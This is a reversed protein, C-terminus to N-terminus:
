RTSHKALLSEFRSDRRMPDWTPDVRLMAVSVERGAPMSLLEELLGFAGDFDGARACIEAAGGMTATRSQADATVLVLAMARRAETIAQQSRGLGAYALGLAIHMRPDKPHSAVSDELRGRAADYRARAQAQDGLQALAQAQMLARPRYFMDDFSIEHRSAALAALADAPRRQIRAVTFRAWTATGEPDWEPPLRQLTSALTDATGQWRLYVSGRIVRADHDDPTLAIVRDWTRAAAAYRRLRSETRALGRFVDVNRPDLATAREFQVVAEEWRGQRRLVNAVAAHLESDNPLGALAVDYEHLARDFAGTVAWAYGRAQHAQALSPQLRLATEAEVAAKERRAPSPDYALSFLLSHTISLRARALAFLSDLALARGYLTQASRINEESTARLEYERGRRYYDYAEANTTPPLDASQEVMAPRPGSRGMARVAMGASAAVVLVATAFTLIRRNSARPARGSAAAALDTEAAAATPPRQERQKRLLSRVVADVASPIDARLVRPRTPEDHVIAHAISIDREGEFPRQGTLMEFLVVGLAWVDARADVSTGRIQEPAMYSVTGMMVRSATLTVDQAKALGFDLVKVGGDPLLMINAPKVDRHVIGAAHAAGLGRAIAQAISLAEAVSLPGDRALRAKLTEGPCFAMALYLQGDESEGVEHVACVNPHDLAGAARGERLFRERARADLSREPLPFKLAITRGLRTDEALYVMGMGGTALPELVRFHAVTRGTLGLPDTGSARRASPDAEGPVLVADMHALRADAQADAELLLEVARALTADVLQLREARRAPDLEVVEDFLTRIERWRAADLTSM